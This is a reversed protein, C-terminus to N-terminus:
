LLKAYEAKAQKLTLIEPDADKWLSLFTQYEAKARATDGTIAYARGLGLHALAGIPENGVVGAHGVIKQFESVAAAGQRAALQAEGRLYVPYLAFTFAGNTEALEYPISSALAEIARQADGGHLAVVARIMPLYIFQVTTNEPFRKGLDAAFKEAQASDAALGLAIASLSEPEWSTSQALAAQAGKKAFDMNGAVAQRVADHGEYEAAAEKEDVRQASEAAQAALGHSRAFEGNYAATESELFLLQDDIGPKGTADAVQRDMGATDHELFDVNYLVLAFWPSVVNRARAENITAKAQDLQGSWQCSYSLNVANNSSGPNINIAKQAAVRGKEYDGMLTYTFWLYAPAEEDRPYTQQWLQYSTRAAELNGAFSLEYFSSIALKESESTRQRLDYAKRAYEGSLGFASLPQYCQALRLYAMAFNPDLSIARQLLPVAAAYDNAVDM